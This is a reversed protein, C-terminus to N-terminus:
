FSINFIKIVRDDSCLLVIHLKSAYQKIITQCGLVSCVHEYDKNNLRILYKRMKTLGTPDLVHRTNQLSEKIAAVALGIDPYISLTVRFHLGDFNVDIKGIFRQIDLKPSVFVSVCNCNM